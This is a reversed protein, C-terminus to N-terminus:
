QGGPNNFTEGGGLGCCPVHFTIFSKAKSGSKNIVIVTVVYDNPQLPAFYTVESGSGIIEGGGLAAWLFSVAEGGPDTVSCTIDAMTSKQLTILKADGPSVTFNAKDQLRVVTFGNIVPPLIIKAKVSVTVSSSAQASNNDTVVASIKYSGATDPAVWQVNDTNGIITGADASWAYSLLNGDPDTAVCIISNTSSVQVEEPANIYHIVPPHNVVPTPTSTPTPTPTPTPTQTPTITPTPSVTPMPTTNTAPSTVVPTCASLVLVGATLPVILIKFIIPVRKM